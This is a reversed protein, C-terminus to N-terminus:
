SYENCVVMSVCLRHGETVLRSVSEQFLKTNAPNEQLANAITSLILKVYELIERRDVATRLTLPSPHPQLSPSPCLQLPTFIFAVCVCVCVSM